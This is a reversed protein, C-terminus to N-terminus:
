LACKSGSMIDYTWAKEGLLQMWVTEGANLALPLPKVRGNYCLQQKDKLYSQNWIYATVTSHQYSLTKVIVAWFSKSSGSIISVNTSGLVFFVPLLQSVTSGVVGTGHAMRQQDVWICFVDSQNSLCGSYQHHSCKPKYLM